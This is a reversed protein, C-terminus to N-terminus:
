IRWQSTLRCYCVAVWSSKGDKNLSYCVSVTDYSMLWESAYKSM